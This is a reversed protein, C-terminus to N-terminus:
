MKRTFMLEHRFGGLSRMWRVLNDLPQGIFKRTIPATAVIIGNEVSVSVTMKDSSFWWEEVM